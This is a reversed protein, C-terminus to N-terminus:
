RTRIRISRVPRVWAVERRGRISSEGRPCCKRPRGDPRALYRSLPFAVLRPPTRTAHAARAGGGLIVTVKRGEGHGTSFREHGGLGGDGSLGEGTSLGRVRRVARPRTGRRRRWRRVDGSRQRRQPQVIQQPGESSGAVLDGVSVAATGGMQTQRRTKDEQSLELSDATIPQSRAPEWATPWRPRRLRILRIFARHRCRPM